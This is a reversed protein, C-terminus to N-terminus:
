SAKTSDELMPRRVAHTAKGARNSDVRAYLVEVQRAMHQWSYTMATERARRGLTERFSANGLLRACYAALAAADSPDQLIYGNVDHEILESVGARASVIVALGSAMAELAVLGFTDYHSPFVCVDHARYVAPMDGRFGLFRVRRALDPNAAVVQPYTSNTTRGVVSLSIEEPLATLADLATNLGKMGSSLDGVFLLRVNRDSLPEARHDGDERPAFETSDVGNYIVTIREGAVAAKDVLEEAVKHSVAVVATSRKYVVREMHAHFRRYIRKYLSKATSHTRVFRDLPSASHCLHCTNVDSGIFAADGNNHVIDYKEGRLALWVVLAFSIGEVFETARLTPIHHVTVRPTNALAPDVRKAYLHVDHGQLAMHRATEYNVRGQGDNKVVGRTIIAIKM